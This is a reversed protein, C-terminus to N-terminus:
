LLGRLKMLDFVNAKVSLKGTAWAKAFDLRGDVLAILDDSATILRIKANPDPGDQIDTLHGGKLRGHFSTDLDTIDLALSRDLDLKGKAEANRALVEALQQLAERCEEITAM